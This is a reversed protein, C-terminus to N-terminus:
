KNLKFNINIRVLIDFGVQKVLKNLIYISQVVLQIVKYTSKIIYYSRNTIKLIIFFRFM